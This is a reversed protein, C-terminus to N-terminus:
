RRMESVLHRIQPLILKEMALRVANTSGPLAFILTNQIVGATARSLMASSGVEQWSLMRFLEGFGTLPRDIMEQLTKFTNDRRSIGTGGNTIIVDFNSDVAVKVAASIWDPEDPVLRYLAVEHGAEALTERIFRGSSDSAEDRSDSCTVVACKVSIDSSSKLHDTHSM